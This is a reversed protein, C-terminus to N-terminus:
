KSKRKLKRREKRTIRPKILNVNKYINEIVLTKDASESSVLVVPTNGHCLKYIEVPTGITPSGIIGIKTTKM